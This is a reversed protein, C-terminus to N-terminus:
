KRPYPRARPIKERARPASRWPDPAAFLPLSARASATQRRRCGRTPGRLAHHQAGTRPKRHPCRGYASCQGHALASVMRRPVPLASPVPLPGPYRGHASCRGHALASVMRKLVPLPGSYRGHVSCQCHAPYQGHAQCQCHAQAGVISQSVSWSGSCPRHTLAGVTNKPVAPTRPCRPGRAQAPGHPCPTASSLM